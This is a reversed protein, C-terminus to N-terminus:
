LDVQIDVCRAGDDVLNELAVISRNEGITLRAGALGVRHDAVRVRRLCLSDDRVSKRVDKSVDRLRFLIFLSNRTPTLNVFSSLDM